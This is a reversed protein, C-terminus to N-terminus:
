GVSRRALLLDLTDVNGDLNLDALFAEEGAPRFLARRVLLLDLDNVTGSGNVDGALARVFLDVDGAVANGSLDVLGAITVGVTGRDSAGTLVVTLTTGAADLQASGFEAISSRM